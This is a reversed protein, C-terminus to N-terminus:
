GREGIVNVTSHGPLPPSKLWVVGSLYLNGLVKEALTDFAPRDHFRSVVIRRHLWIAGALHWVERDLKMQTYGTLDREREM